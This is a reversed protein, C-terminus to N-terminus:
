LLNQMFLCHTDTDINGGRFHGPVTSLTIQEPLPTHVWLPIHKQSSLQVPGSQVTLNFIVMVVPTNCFGVTGVVGVNVCTLTVTLDVVRVVVVIIVAGGIATRVASSLPIPASHNTIMSAETTPDTTNKNAM